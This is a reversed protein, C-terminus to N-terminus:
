KNSWCDGWSNDWCNGWTQKAAIGSADEIEGGVINNDGETPSGALIDLPKIKKARMSPMIYTKKRMRM